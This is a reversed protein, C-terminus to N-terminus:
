GVGEGVVSGAGNELVSVIGKDKAFRSGSRSGGEFAHKIFEGSGRAEGNVKIFRAENGHM